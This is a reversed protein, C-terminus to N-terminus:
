PICQQGRLHWWVGLMKWPPQLGEFGRSGGGVAAPHKHVHSPPLSPKQAPLFLAPPCGAAVQPMRVSCAGCRGLSWRPCRAELFCSAPLLGVLIKGTPGALCLSSPALERRHTNLRDPM